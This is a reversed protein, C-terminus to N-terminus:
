TQQTEKCPAPFATGRSPTFDLSPSDWVDGTSFSEQM